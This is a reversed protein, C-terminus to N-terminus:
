DDDDFFEVYEEELVDAAGCMAAVRNLIWQMRLLEFSPLPMSEPDATTMTFLQGSRIREETVCDWLKANFPGADLDSPLSPSDTVRVWKSYKRLPLWWFRLVLTKKDESMAVPELAFRAKRWLGHVSESLCLLNSIVETGDPGSIYEEWKAITKDLWFLNLLSWFSQRKQAPMKQITPPYVHCPSVPEGMRTVICLGDDREFAVRKATYCRETRDQGAVRESRRPIKSPPRDVGKFKRKQSPQPIETTTPSQDALDPPPPNDFDLESELEPDIEERLWYKLTRVTREPNTLCSFVLNARIGGSQTERLMTRLVEIDSLWLISHTALDVHHIKCTDSLQQILRARENSLLEPAVSPPM